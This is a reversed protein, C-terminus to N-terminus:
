EEFRVTIAAGHAPLGEVDAFHEIKSQLPALGAREYRVVQQPKLFTSASLGSRYRAQGGTPLVHNSGAMYDGLAVPSYGGVFIVGANTLQSLLADPERVQVELHEPAFANAFAVARDLSDVLVLASQSGALAVAVRASHAAHSAQSRLEALVREAWAADAT